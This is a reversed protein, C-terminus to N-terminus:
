EYELGSESLAYKLMVDQISGIMPDGIKLTNGQSYQEKAYEVFGQWDDYPADIPVVIGSGETQVPCIISVPAGQDMFLIAPPVGIICYDINGQSASTMAASGGAFEVLTVTAVDTENVVLTYTQKEEVPRLYIGYEDRFYEWDYAAVFLAADHDSPLYGVTIKGGTEAPATDLHSKTFAMAQAAEYIDEKFLLDELEEDTKSALSDSVLEIEELSHVFDYVNQKWAQTPETVFTITDISHQEVSVSDVTIDGLTLDDGGFLWEACYEATEEMHTGIYEDAYMLLTTMYAALEPDGEIFDDTAVLSCCPHNDWQGSPPLDQSYTIVKGVGAIEGVSVLPQWAFYADLQNNALSSPMTGCGAMYVLEVKTADDQDGGDSICGSVLATILLATMIIKVHKLEIVV